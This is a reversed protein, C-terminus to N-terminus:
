ELNAHKRWLAHLDTINRMDAIRLATIDAILLLSQEFLSSMIQNSKIEDPLNLKTSCPIRVFLDEYPTMSSQANSGIHIIKPGFKAAKKVLAVPVISEGSGSGVILVDNETIAPENIEGVYYSDIGLHNLRKEFAQMMLLVRGVGVVFVKEAGCIMEAMKDIEEERVANLVTSLESIVTNKADKCNM